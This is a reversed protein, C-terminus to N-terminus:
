LSPDVATEDDVIAKEDVLVREACHCRSSNGKTFSYDCEKRCQANIDCNRNAEPLSDQGEVSLHFRWLLECSSAGLSFLFSSFSSIDCLSMDFDLLIKELCPSFCFSRDEVAVTHRSLIVPRPSPSIRTTGYPTWHAGCLACWPSPIAVRM